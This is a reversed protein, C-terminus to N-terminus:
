DPCGAVSAAASGCGRATRAVERWGAASDGASSSPCGLFLGVPGGVAAPQRRCLLLGSRASYRNREPVGPAVGVRVAVAARRGPRHLVGAAGVHRDGVVTLWSGRFLLCLPLLRAPMARVAAEPTIRDGPRSRPRSRQQHLAAVADVVVVQKSPGSRRPRWRVSPQREAVYALAGITGRSLALM